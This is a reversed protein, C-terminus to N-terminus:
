GSALLCEDIATRSRRGAVPSPLPSSCDKQCSARIGSIAGKLNRSQSTGGVTTGANRSSKTTITENYRHHIGLRCESIIIAQLPKSGNPM